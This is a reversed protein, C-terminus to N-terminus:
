NEASLNKNAFETPSYGYYDKFIKRFYSLEKFGSLYAVESVYMKKQKLLNSARQLRANRILEVPSQNIIGSVKRYLHMRSLGVDKSLENVGFDPNSLNDDLSKFIRKVLKEDSSDVELDSIIYNMKQFYKKKIKERNEIISAVKVKLLDIDYPKTVYEDAGGTFGEEEDM